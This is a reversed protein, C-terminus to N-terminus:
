ARKRSFTVGTVRPWTKMEQELETFEGFLLCVRLIDIKDLYENENFHHIRYADELQTLYDTILDLQQEKDIM